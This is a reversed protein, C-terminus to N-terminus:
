DDTVVVFASRCLFSEFSKQLLSLGLYAIGLELIGLAHKYALTHTDTAFTKYTRLQKVKKDHSWMEWAMNYINALMRFGFADAM